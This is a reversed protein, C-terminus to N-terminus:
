ARWSGIPRRTRPNSGQAVHKELGRIEADDLIGEYNEGLPAGVSAAADAINRMGRPPTDHVPGHQRLITSADAGSATIPENLFKRRRTFVIESYLQGDEWPAMNQAVRYVIYYPKNLQIERAFKAEQGPKWTKSM